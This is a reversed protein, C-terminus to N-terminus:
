ADKPAFRDLFILLAAGAVCLGIALLLQPDKDLLGVQKDLETLVSYESPLVNERLFPVYQEDPKGAHALRTSLTQKWPWVVYLSGLLFGSM